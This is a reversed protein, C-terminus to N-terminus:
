EVPTGRKTADFIPDSMRVGEDACVATRMRTAQRDMRSLSDSGPVLRSLHVVGTPRRTLGIRPEEVGNRGDLSESGSGTM